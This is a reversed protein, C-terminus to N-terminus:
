KTWGSVAELCTAPGTGAAIAARRPAELAQAAANAKAAAEQAKRAREQAADGTARLAEVAENQDALAATLHDAKVQCTELRAGQSKWAATGGALFSAAAIAAAIYAQGIM